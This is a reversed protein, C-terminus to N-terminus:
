HEADFGIGRRQRAARQMQPLLQPERNVCARGLFFLWLFRSYDQTEDQNLGRKKNANTAKAQVEGPRIFIGPFL